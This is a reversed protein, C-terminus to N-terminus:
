PSRPRTSDRAASETSPTGKQLDHARALHNAVHERTQQLHAKAQPEAVAPILKDDLAALAETHGAVMADIYAKRYDDGSKGALQQLSAEGKKAQAKADGSNADPQFANTQEKNRTHEEIMLRAYDAVDGAMNKELAQRGAAIEHDNIANLVGLASREANSLNQTMGPGAATDEPVSSSPMESGATTAGPATAAANDSDATVDPNDRCAGLSLICALALPTTLFRKM